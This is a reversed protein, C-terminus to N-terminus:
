FFEIEYSKIILFLKLLHRIEKNSEKLHLNRADEAAVLLKEGDPSWSCGKTCATDFSSYNNGVLTPLKDSIHLGNNSIDDSIVDRKEGDFLETTEKVIEYEDNITIDGNNPSSEIEETRMNSDLPMNNLDHKDLSETTETTEIESKDNLNYRSLNDIGKPLNNLEQKTINSDLSINISDRKDLSDNQQINVNDTANMINNENTVTSESIM